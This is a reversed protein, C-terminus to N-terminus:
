KRRGLLYTTIAKLTAAKRGFVQLSENARGSLDRADERARELGFAKVYDGEDIIDDIIQFALGLSRGFCGLANVRGQPAAAAIAGLRASAEFLRATKHLNIYEMRKADKRRNEFELDVVQGGVMGFTGSADALEAIMRLSSRARSYRAILGFALTLLADGALIANAEGYVKHLTPRGRRMDDDDMAPLDDHVLSYTHVLEVACAVPLAERATGGCARCSEIVLIPRIRKGGSFVSYRMAKHITEPYASAPPLYGDLRKDIISRVHAFYRELNL